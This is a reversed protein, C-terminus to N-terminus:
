VSPSTARSSLRSSSGRLAQSQLELREVRGSSDIDIVGRLWLTDAAQSIDAAPSAANLFGLPILWALLLTILRGNM